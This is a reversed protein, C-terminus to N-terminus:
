SAIGRELMKKVSSVQKKCEELQNQAIKLEHLHQALDKSQANTEGDILDETLCVIAHGCEAGACTLSSSEKALDAYARVIEEKLHANSVRPKSKKVIFDDQAYLACSILCACGFFSKKM